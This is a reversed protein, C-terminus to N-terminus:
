ELGFEKYKRDIENDIELQWEHLTEYANTYDYITTRFANQIGRPTYYSGPVEPIGEVQEWQRSLEYQEANTWPIQRFAERNATAYRAAPGMVKELEVGYKAQIDASTFWKMFEWAGEKDETNKFMVCATVASTESRNLTGDENIMGPVPAMDWLGRIEPASVKLTNALTYQQIAIPMDGTRFRTDFSYTQPFEYNIYYDTAEKFAERAADSGLDTSKLDDTYYKGGRQYMLTNFVTFADAASNPVATSIQSWGVDMNNKRLVPVIQRFQDWTNPVGLGLDSLIDKRYFMMEFNQTDPLAYCGNQFKFPVMASPHFRQSIEDFDDFKSLDVLANRIAFNVPQDSKLTLAVDPGRGALTAEILAGQVLELKVNIDTKPTFDDTILDKLVGVQDRGLNVWVRVSRASGDSEDSILDYNETFSAIFTDFGYKMNQAFGADVKPSEEDPSAIMLYDLQLPQSSMTIIWSSLGAINNKYTALRKSINEPFKAMYNLDYIMSDLQTVASGTKGESLKLLAEKQETLRDAIHRMGDEIGPIQKEFQYDRYKDPVSGSIMVIKRYYENMDFVASNVERLIDTVEGYTVDLTLTHAGKDFYFEYPSQGDGLVMYQWDNSYPFVVNSLENFPVKGDILVRRTSSKGSTTSQLYKLGITYRGAQEVDFQWTIYQGHSAWGSGGVSNLRIKRSSSPETMPSTKDTVPYITSSSKEFTKEAQLKITKGKEASPYTEKVEQYSPLREDGELIFGALYFRQGETTLRITNAGARLYIKLDDQTFGESDTWMHTQWIPKQAMSPRLENDRSDKKIDSTDQWIRRVTNNLAENYQTQGNVTLSLALENGADTGLNCVAGFRYLGDQPADITFEAWEEVGEPFVLVGSKGEYDATTFQDSSVSTYLPAFTLSVDPTPVDKYQELFKQYSNNTDYTFTIPTGYREATNVTEASVPVLCSALMGVSLVACGIRRLWANKLM